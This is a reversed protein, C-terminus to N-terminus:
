AATRVFDIVADADREGETKRLAEGDEFYVLTPISEIGYAEALSEFADVDVQVTDVANEKLRKSAEELSKYFAKCHPCWEAFFEVLLKPDNELCNEFENLSSIKRIM